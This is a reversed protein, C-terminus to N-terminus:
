ALRRELPAFSRLSERASQANAGDNWWRSVRSPHPVILAPVGRLEARALPAYDLGFAEAVARGCIIVRSYGALDLRRAADRVCDAAPEADGNGGRAPGPYEPHLNATDAVHGLEGRQLGLLAELHAGSASGVLARGAGAARSPAIGVVLVERRRVAVERLRRVQSGIGLREIGGPIISAGFLPARYKAGAMVVFTALPFKRRLTGEVEVCWDEYQERSLEGLQTNYPEIEQSPELVRHLASLVRWESCTAEAVARGARFAQGLYIDRAACRVGRKLASCAVLAVRM